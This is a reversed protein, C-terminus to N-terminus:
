PNLQGPDIYLKFDGWGNIEAANLSAATSILTIALVGRKVINLINKM